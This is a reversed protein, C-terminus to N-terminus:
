NFYMLFVFEFMFMVKYSCIFEPCVHVAYSLMLSYVMEATNVFDNRHIFGIHTFSVVLNSIRVLVVPPFSLVMRACWVSIAM